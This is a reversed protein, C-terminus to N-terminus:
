IFLWCFIPITKDVNALKLLFYAFVVMNKYSKSFIEVLAVKEELRRESLGIKLAASAAELVMGLAFFSPHSFLSSRDMFFTEVTNMWIMITNFCM